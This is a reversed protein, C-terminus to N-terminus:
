FPNLVRSSYVFAIAVKSDVPQGDLLAPQFEWQKAAKVVLPVFGGAMPRVVKVQGTAGDAKVTVQVVTSGAAITSPPYEAYAVSLISPPTFGTNAKATSKKTPFMPAFPPPNWIKVAHRFVFAVLMQSEEPTDDQSAPKFKWSRLSSEAPGTLSRVDHLLNIKTVEGRANLSVDFVVIDDAISAFPYQVDRAAIVEPPEFTKQSSALTRQSRRGGATTQAPTQLPFVYAAFTSTSPQALWLPAALAPFLLTVVFWSRRNNNRMDQRGFGARRERM